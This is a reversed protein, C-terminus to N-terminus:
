SKTIYIFHLTNSTYSIFFSIYYLYEPLVLRSLNGVIIVNVIRNCSM